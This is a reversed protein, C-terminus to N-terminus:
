SKCILKDPTDNTKLSKRTLNEVLTIMERKALDFVLNQANMGRLCHKGDILIKFAYGNCRKAYKNECRWFYFDDRCKEKRM